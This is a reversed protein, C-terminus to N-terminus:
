GARRGTAERIRLPLKALGQKSRLQGRVRPDHCRESRAAAARIFGYILALAALDRRARFLARATLYWFRYGVFYATEGQDIWPRIRGDRQGLPRHHYFPLREFSATRWGLANAQLEDVVDWGLRQELPRVDEFCAWRWVRTAGRVHGGTVRWAVWHGQELEYCTGSAIGLTPDAAFEALLMEFYEAAFSVDADLKVIFDVPVDLAAAGANFALVDRGSSRGDVLAEGGVGRSPSDLMRVWAYRGELEQAVERTEDTSGDDVILWRAPLLTQSVVSSGLRRLNAAENRAPTVLAYLPQV